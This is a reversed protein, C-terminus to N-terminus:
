SPLRNSWSEVEQDFDISGFLQEAWTDHAEVRVDLKIHFYQMEKFLDHKIEDLDFQTRGSSIYLMNLASVLSLEVRRSTSSVLAIIEMLEEASGQIQFDRFSSKVVLTDM